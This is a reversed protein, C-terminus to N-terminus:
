SEVEPVLFRHGCDPCECLTGKPVMERKQAQGDDEGIMTRLRNIQRVSPETTFSLVGRFNTHYGM